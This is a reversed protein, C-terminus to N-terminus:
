GMISVNVFETIVKVYIKAYCLQLACRIYRVHLTHYYLATKMQKLIQVITGLILTDSTSQVLKFHTLTGHVTEQRAHINVGRGLSQSVQSTTFLLVVSASIANGPILVYETM